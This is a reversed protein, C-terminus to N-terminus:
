CDSNADCAGFITVTDSNVSTMKRCTQVLVPQVNWRPLETAACCDARLKAEHKTGYNSRNFM